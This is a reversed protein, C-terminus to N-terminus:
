VRRKRAPTAVGQVDTRPLTDLSLFDHGDPVLADFNHDARALFDALKIRSEFDRDASRVPEPDNLLEFAAAGQYPLDNEKIKKNTDDQVLILPPRGAADLRAQPQGALIEPVLNKEYYNIETDDVVGDHDRDLVNFFAEADARFEARDIHGDKNADARGFWVVVPYPEGPKSRFPEGSPSIFLQAEDLPTLQSRPPAAAILVPHRSRSHAIHVHRAEEVQGYAQWM